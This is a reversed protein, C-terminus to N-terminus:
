ILSLISFYVVLLLVIQESHFVNNGKLDFLTNQTMKKRSIKEYKKSFFAVYNTKNQQLVPDYRVGRWLNWNNM